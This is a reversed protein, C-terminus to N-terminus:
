SSSKKLQKHYMFTIINILVNLYTKASDPTHEEAYKFFFNQLNSEYGVSMIMLPDNIQTGKIIQRM